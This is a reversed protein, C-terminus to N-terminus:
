PLTQLDLFCILFLIPVNDINGRDGEVHMSDLYVSFREGMFPIAYETHCRPYANWAKEIMMKASSPLIADALRPLKSGFRMIKETYQGNGRENSYPHNAVIEVQSDGDSKERSAVAVTYLQGVQYEDITFPLVIRFEVLM